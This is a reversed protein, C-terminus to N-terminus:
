WNQRVELIGACVKVSGKHKIALAEIQKDTLYVKAEEESEM